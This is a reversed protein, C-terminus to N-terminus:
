AIECRHSVSIADSHRLSIDADPVFRVYGERQEIDAISPFASMSTVYCRIQSKRTNRLRRRVWRAAESVVGLSPM